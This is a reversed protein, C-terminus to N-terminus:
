AQTLRKYESVMYDYLKNGDAGMLTPISNIPMTYLFLNILDNDKPIQPLEGREGAQTMHDIVQRGIPDNLWQTFNTWEDLPMALNDGPLQLDVTQVVDRSSTAIEIGYTGAEVHWNNYMTSWYAFAREDLDISVQRAEGPELYVKKFGKLEHVPRCVASQRPAVYIQVVSAGAKDGTNRVTLKVTATNTNDGAEVSIDEYAFQTYSLGFGFPYAVERKFTDYYRYGVMVGEGYDVHREEGPWNLMSPDDMIDLPISQSLKGSPNVEGTLVQALAEGGGQGLLWGDVIAQVNARWPAISVVSGHSLVVIINSQVKAIDDLLDLQYQPLDINTRDFGESEEHDALGLCLVVVDANQAVSVAEDHLAQAKHTAEQAKALAAESAKSVASDVGLISDFGQAFTLNLGRLQLRELLQDVKHPNLHSSGGGQYRAHQAFDGILAINAKSNLPLINNENKLLVISEAAAKRALEHHAEVDYDASGGDASCDDSGVPRYAVRIRDYLDVMGQSMREIQEYSIDGQEFAQMIKEDTYTPPMELNLGANYSAVRDHVAGWDSMVIGKFGWEDRLIETLLHRNESCFHGNVQNYACMITWPQAEKVIHEFAPLYIERLARESVRADICLRDTEQNNVAFHKLSTGVGQSQVGKVIGIASHGALFPDESWYEFCRGGLPNRKINVGPGLLVGVHEALCEEGIARGAEYAIDSNWSNAMGAAPPFCTSAVTNILDLAASDGGTKRLGHPGDTIMIPEVDQSEIGQMHWADNGSSLSVREQITLNESHITQKLKNTSM